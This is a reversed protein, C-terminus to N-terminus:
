QVAPPAASKSKVLNLKIGLQIGWSSFAVRQQPYQSNVTLVNNQPNYTNNGASSVNDSYSFKASSVVVNPVTSETFNTIDGTTPSWKEEIKNIECYIDLMDSVSYDVGASGTFGFSIGGSATLSTSASYPTIYSLGYEIATFTENYNNSVTVSEGFGFLVGAKVYPTFKAPSASIKISPTIRYRSSSSLQSGISLNDHTTDAINYDSTSNSISGQITTGQLYSFGLEVSINKTINYGAAVSFTFGGALGQNLSQNSNSFTSSGNSNYSVTSSKNNDTFAFPSLSGFGSYYPSNNSYSLIGSCFNPTGIDNLNFDYGGGAAFYFKQAFSHQFPALLLFNFLVGTTILKIKM